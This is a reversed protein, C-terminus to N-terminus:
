NEIRVGSVTRRKSDEKIDHRKQIELLASGGEEVKFEKGEFSVYFADGKREGGLQYFDGNFNRFILYRDTGREFYVKLAKPELNKAIAPTRKPFNVRYYYIGDKFEVKGGKIRDQPPEASVNLLRITRDNFYQLKEVTDAGRKNLRERTTHTFHTKCSSFLILSGIAAFLFPKM